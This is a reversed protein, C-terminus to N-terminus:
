RVSSDYSRCAHCCTCWRSHLEYFLESFEIALDVDGGKIELSGIKNIEIDVKIM